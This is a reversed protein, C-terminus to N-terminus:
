KNEPKTSKEPKQLTEKTEPKEAKKLAQKYLIAPAQQKAPQPAFTYTPMQEIEPKVHHVLVKSPALPEPLKQMEAQYVATQSQAYVLPKQQEQAPSIQLSAVKVGKTRVVPEVIMNEAIYYRRRTCTYYTVLQFASMAVLSCPVTVVLAAGLTFVGFVLNVLFMILVLVFANSFVRGFMPAIIDFGRGFSKRVSVQENILCPMVGSLVTIHLSALLMWLLLLPSLLLISSLFSKALLLYFYFFCFGLLWFPISVLLKVFSYGISKKLSVVLKNSYGDKINSSMQSNVVEGITYININHLVNYLVCFVIAFLLYNWWFAHTNNLIVSGLMSSTDAFSEAVEKPSTYMTTFFANVQGFWGVEQLKQFLPLLTVYGLAGVALGCVFMYLFAKWVIHFNNTTVKCTNKFM